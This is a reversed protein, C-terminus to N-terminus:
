RLATPSVQLEAAIAEVDGGYKKNLWRVLDSPMLLGRAFINAEWEIRDALEKFRIIKALYAKSDPDELERRGIRGYIKPIAAPATAEGDEATEGLGAPNVAQDGCRYFRAAPKEVCM